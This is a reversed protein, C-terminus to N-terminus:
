SHRLILGRCLRWAPRFFLRLGTSVARHQGQNVYDVLLARWGFLRNGIVHKPSDLRVERGNKNIAFVKGVIDDSKLGSAYGSADGMQFFSFGGSARNIRVVRHVIIRQSDKFAVIDGVHIKSPEVRRVKVIDGIEIFPSMSGSAIKFSVTRGKECAELWMEGLVDQIETELL